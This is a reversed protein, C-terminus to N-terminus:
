CGSPLECGGKVGSGSSVTGEETRRLYWDCKQHVYMGAFCKIFMFELFLIIINITSSSFHLATVSLVLKNGTDIDPLEYGGIQSAEHIRVHWEPRRTFSVLM